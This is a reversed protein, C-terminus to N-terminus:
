HIKTFTPRRRHLWWGAAAGALVVAAAAILAVPAGGGGAGRSAATVPLGTASPAPTPQAADALPATAAPPAATPPATAGPTATAAPPATPQPTASAVATRAPTAAPRATANPPASPPPPPNGSGVVVTGHMFSHIACHYTFTGSTAYMHSYTQTAALDGSAYSGDDATVTHPAKSSSTWTVTGGPDVHVTAPNFCYPNGGCGSDPPSDVISVSGTAAASAALPTLLFTAMAATIAARRRHPRM